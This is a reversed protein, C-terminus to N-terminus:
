CFLFDLSSGNPFTGLFSFSFIRKRELLWLRSSYLSSKLLSVPYITEGPLVHSITSLLLLGPSLRTFSISYFHALRSSKILNNGASHRIPVRGSATRWPSDLTILLTAWSSRDLADQSLRKLLLSFSYVCEKALVSPLVGEGLFRTLPFNWKKFTIM